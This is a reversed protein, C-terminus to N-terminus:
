DYMSYDNSKVAGGQLYSEFKTGFLTQPRLYQRMDSDNGWRSAMNDIVTKFDDVTFGENLRAQILTRTKPTSPKYQTGAAENLCAIIEEVQASLM